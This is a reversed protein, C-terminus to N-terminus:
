RAPQRRRRDELRDRGEAPHPDGPRALGQVEDVAFQGLRAGDGLRRLAQRHPAPDRGEERRADHLVPAERHAHGPLRAARDPAHRAAGQARLGRGPAADRRSRLEPNLAQLEELSLDAGGALTGLDVPRDLRVTEFAIPPELVVDFGYHTPDKSILVSALFAPVYNQTQRRIASTGALQWFDRAGTKEMARLIKGEGANYAAM